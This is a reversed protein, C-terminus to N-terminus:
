VGSRDGGTSRLLTIFAGKSSISHKTPFTNVKTECHTRSGLVPYLIEELKKGLVYRKGQSPGNLSFINFTKTTPNINKM